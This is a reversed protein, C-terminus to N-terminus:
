RPASGSPRLTPGYDRGRWSRGPRLTGWTLRAAVAVDALPSLWFTRRPPRYAPAVAAVLGLRVAALAADLRDGRGLAIRLPPLAMALWVVLLDAAQWAPSTADPMPLSRGWDRYAEGASEHMRVDLVGAGDLLATRWGLGALTRVLAVDDTLNAAALAFGGADLLAGRRMLMCQGNALRRHPPASVRAGPPAFRYLLTTLMAPHLLQLVVGDCEFRGAASVLDWGDRTAAELLGAVLGPRPRTDADLTLVWDGSAAELGQQLAWPKGVWGEPLPRGPVVRAGLSAAVTATDDASEDDVVLVESVQPDHRLAQLCPTIRGAEDRAPIIVTVRTDCWAGPRPRLPPRRSAGQAIRTLALGAAAWRLADVATM